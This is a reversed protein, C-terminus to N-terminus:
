HAIFALSSCFKGYSQGVVVVSADQRQQRIGARRQKRTATSKGRPENLETSQTSHLDVLRAM